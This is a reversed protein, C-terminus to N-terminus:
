RGALKLTSQFDTLRVNASVLTEARLYNQRVWSLRHHTLVLVNYKILPELGISCVEAMLVACLGIHLDWARAGSESVHMFKYIFGM